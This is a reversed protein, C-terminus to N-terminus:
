RSNDAIIFTTETEADKKYVDTKHCPVEEFGVPCMYHKYCHYIYAKNGQTLGKKLAKLASDSTHNQTLNRTGRPKYFIRAEGKVNFHHCLIGFWKILQKNGAFATFNIKDYPPKFKM